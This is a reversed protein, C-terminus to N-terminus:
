AAAAGCKVALWYRMSLFNAGIGTTVRLRYLLGQRIARGAPNEGTRNQAARYLQLVHIDGHLSVVAGWRLLLPQDRGANGGQGPDGPDGRVFQDQAVLLIRVPPMGAHVATHRSRGKEPQDREQRCVVAQPDREM